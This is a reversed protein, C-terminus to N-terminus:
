NAISLNRSHLAFIYCWFCFVYMYLNCWPAYLVTFTTKWSKFQSETVKKHANELVNWLSKHGNDMNKEPSNLQTFISCTQNEYLDIVSLVFCTACLVSYTVCIYCLEYNYLVVSKFHTQSYVIIIYTFASFLYVLRM